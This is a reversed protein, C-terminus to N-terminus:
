EDEDGEATRGDATRLILESVRRHRTCLLEREAEEARSQINWQRVDDVLDEIADSLRSRLLGPSLAEVATHPDIDERLCEERHRKFNVDATNVDHTAFQGSRVDDATVAIQQFDLYLGGEGYREM